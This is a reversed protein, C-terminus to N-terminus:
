YLRVNQSRGHFGMRRPRKYWRGGNRRSALWPVSPPVGQTRSPRPHPCAGLLGRGDSSRQAHWRNLAPIPEAHGPPRFVRGKPEQDARFHRFTEQLSRAGQYVPLLLPWHGQPGGSRIERQALRKPGRRPFLHAAQSRPRKVPFRIVYHLREATPRRGAVSRTASPKICPVGRAGLGGNSNRGDRM